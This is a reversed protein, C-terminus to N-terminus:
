MDVNRIAQGGRHGRGVQEEPILEPQMKAERDKLVVM